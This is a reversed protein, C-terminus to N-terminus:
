KNKNIRSRWNTSLEINKSIYDQSWEKESDLKKKIKDININNRWNQGNEGWHEKFKILKSPNELLYNIDKKINESIQLRRTKDSTHVTRPFLSQSKIVSKKLSDRAQSTKKDIKNIYDSNKVWLLNLKIM